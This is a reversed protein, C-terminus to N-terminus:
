NKTILKVGHEAPKLVDVEIGKFAQTLTHAVQAGMGEKTICLITPGAGSLAAGYIDEEAEAFSIVKDM